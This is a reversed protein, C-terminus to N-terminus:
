RLSLVPTYNGLVARKWWAGDLRREAPTTFHYEYILARIYRPPASPFPNEELLALVEPQGQLLRELLSGFWPHQQASGLAAFWMQWDLRPQHPAVFSPARFINGPKWKFEYAEWSTGDRSGEIIIERRPRTMVAFLGYSNWTRLPSVTRLLPRTLAPMPLQRTLQRLLQPVTAALTFAMLGSLVARRPWRPRRQKLGVAAAPAFRSPWMWRLARDDFLLLCLAITLLNFFTYNGTAAILLQLGIISIGAFIRLRRPFIILFPVGLEIVFNGLTSLQHWWLPLQHAYWGFVTPLPQTEFHYSLATLNHWTEDGSALKVVGSAFMLRFLLWWLLCRAVPPPAHAFGHKPHFRWPALFVALFGAELLLNDWQFSLFEQGISIFSLYLLWLTLLIPGPWVGFILLVSLGAGLAALTQLMGDSSSIWAVTPVQWIAHWGVAQQRVARLLDRAPLIGSSGLLGPLQVHLSYFAILFVVGLLRLLLWASRRFSPRRVTKGWLWQTLKLLAPRHRSIVRYARESVAAFGPVQRYCWRLWRRGPVTALAAFVAAAGRQISGDPHVLHIAESFYEPAIGPLRTAAEHAPAYRVLDGTTEHWREVWLRCFGCTGDYVLLPCTPPQPPKGPPTRETASTSQRPPQTM